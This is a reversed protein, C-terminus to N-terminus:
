SPTKNFVFQFDVSILIVLSLTTSVIAVLGTRRESKEDNDSGWLICLGIYISAILPILPVWPILIDQM